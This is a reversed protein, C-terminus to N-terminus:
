RFKRAPAAKTKTGTKTGSAKKKAGTKPPATKKQGVRVGDLARVTKVENQERGEYTRIGLTITCPVGQLEPTTVDMTDEDYDIDLEDDPDIIGLNEFTEKMRFLAKPSFSLITFAKRGKFEGEDTIDFQLNIYDHKGEETALVYKAAEIIASYDDEPLADFDQVDAFNVTVRAM